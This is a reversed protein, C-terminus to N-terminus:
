KVTFKILKPKLFCNVFYNHCKKKYCMKISLAMLISAVVELIYEVCSFPVFTIKHNSMFTPYNKTLVKKKSKPQNEYNKSLILYLLQCM